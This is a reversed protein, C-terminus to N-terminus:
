ANRAELQQKSRQLEALYSEREEARLTEAELRSHETVDHLTVLVLWRGSLTLQAAWAEFTREEAEGHRFRHLLVPQDSTAEDLRAAILDLWDPEVATTADGAALTQSLLETGSRNIEVIEGNAPDLLLKALSPDEFLQRYLQESERLEGLARELDRNQAAIIDATRTKVRYRSALLIGTLLLLVLGALLAQRVTQQQRMEVAALAQQQNLLAAEKEMQDFEFRSRTAAVAERNAQERVEHQIEQYREFAAWAEQDRGSAALLDALERYVGRLDGPNGSDEAISRAQELYELAAGYHQRQRQIAALRILLGAIGAREGLDRKIALSKRFEEEARDLDGREEYALGLNNRTSAIGNPDNLQRKLELSRHYHQIASAVEGEFKLVVGINNLLRAVQPLNAERQQIELAQRYVRLAEANQGLRRYVVGLNNLSRALGAKDGLERRITSSRLYTRLAQSYDGLQRYALGADNLLVALRRRDSLQDYIEIAERTAELARLPADVARHVDGILHLATALQSQDRRARALQEALVGYRLALQPEDLRLYARALVNCLELERPRDPVKSMLQMAEQGFAVAQAPDPHRDALEVLLELRLRGSAETLRAELREIKRQLDGEGQAHIAPALLM